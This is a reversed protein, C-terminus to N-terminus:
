GERVSHQIVTYWFKKKLSFYCQKCHKHGDALKVEGDKIDESSVYIFQIGTINKVCHNFMDQHTCINTRKNYLHTVM